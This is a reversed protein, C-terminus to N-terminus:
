PNEQQTPKNQPMLNTKVDQRPRGNYRDMAAVIGEMAFVLAADAARKIVTEMEKMEDPTFKGLVHQALDVTDKSIGVGIRLRPFQQSGLHEIISKLGNHGGASGAARLRLTGMPLHVDDTIVLLDTLDAAGYRIATAVSEGSRNMFTLPKLLGVRRGHERFETFLGSYKERELRLRKQEAITDIVRFGVNHRTWQYQRGPNGLGVLLIRKEGDQTQPEPTM